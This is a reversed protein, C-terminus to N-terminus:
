GERIRELEDLCGAREAITTIVDAPLLGEHACLALLEAAPTGLDALLKVDGAPVVDTSEVADDDRVIAADPEEAIAADVEDDVSAPATVPGGTEELLLEALRSEDGARTDSVFVRPDDGIEDVRVVAVYLDDEELLLLTLDAADDVERMLDGLAAVDNVEDLDLEAAIWGSRQRARAAAFYPVNRSGEPM